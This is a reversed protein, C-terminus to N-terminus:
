QLINHLLINVLIIAGYQLVSYQLINIYQYITAARIYMCVRTPTHYYEIHHYTNVIVM